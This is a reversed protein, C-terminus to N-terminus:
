RGGPRLVRVLAQQIRSEAGPAVWLWFGQFGDSFASQTPLYGTWCQGFGISMVFTDPRVKQALLQYGVFSEGPFLVIQAPGFDVCPMEISPGRSLYDRTSLGMAALVRHKRNAKRNELVRRMASESFEVDTRYELDLRTTRFDVQQLPQVRTNKWALRLAQYLRDALRPRNARSADNYKGATVDGSCGSVYMQFAPATDAAQRKRAMGVFDARVEGRGYHSMPHGASANLAAGPRPGDWFSITKLWPDILGDDAERNIRDTAGNSGRRFTVRGDALVM